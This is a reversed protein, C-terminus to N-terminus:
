WSVFPNIKPLEIQIEHILWFNNYGFCLMNVLENPIPRHVSKMFNSYKKKLTYVAGTIVVLLVLSAVVIAVVKGTLNNSPALATDVFTSLKFFRTFFFFYCVLFGSFDFRMIIATNRWYRTAPDM